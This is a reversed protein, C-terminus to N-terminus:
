VHRPLLVLRKTVAGLAAETPDRHPPSIPPKKAAVVAPLRRCHQGAEDGSAPPEVDIRKGIQAFDEFADTSM